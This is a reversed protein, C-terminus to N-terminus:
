REEVEVTLRSYPKLIKAGRGRARAKFRRMTFAKGVLVKSVYLRDIDMDFNNEANAVASNLCAKLYSAVKKKTFTLQILAQDAKMGRILDSVQNLKQVSTKITSIKANATKKDEAIMETM